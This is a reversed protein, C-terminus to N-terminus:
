AAKALGGDGALILNLIKETDSMVRLCVSYVSLDLKKAYNEIYQYSNGLSDSQKGVLRCLTAAALEATIEQLPDQGLKLKGKLLRDAHHALEHFLVSEEPSALGIEQRQPSYYGYYRFNGPVAKVALGWERARDLLPLEPLEIQQYDLPEGATDELKFVPKLGFGTLVQKEAGGEEVTRLYPVLIHIAKAGKKVYRNCLHWQRFGRADMTGSLFMLTRNLLSWRSSPLDPFPFMVYTIATPINGSQFQAIIGNLVSQIKDNM